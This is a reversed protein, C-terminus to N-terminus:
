RGVPRADNPFLGACYELPPADGGAKKRHRGVAVSSRLYGLQYKRPTEIAVRRLKYKRPEYFFSCRRGASSPIPEVTLRIHQALFGLLYTNSRFAGDSRLRLWSM